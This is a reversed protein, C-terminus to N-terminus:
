GMAALRQLLPAAEALLAAEQATMTSLQGRVGDAWVADIRKKHEAAKATLRLRISRRDHADPSREILGREVLRRVTTSVNSPQLALIRAVDSVTVGPHDSVTRIVEFESHPLPDLGVQREGFRRLSWVVTRVAAAIDRVDRASVAENAPPM